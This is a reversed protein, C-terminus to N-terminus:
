DRTLGLCARVHPELGSLGARKGADLATEPSCGLCAQARLAFLAGVRNGSGCHVLLPYNGADALVGDLERAREVCVDQPGCVPLHVYRMGHEEVRAAENWDCEGDGCLNVVTRVGAAALQRLQEPDPQGASYLQDDVQRLNPLAPMANPM